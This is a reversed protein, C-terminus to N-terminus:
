SNKVLKLVEGTQVDIESQGPLNGKIYEGAVVQGNNGQGVYLQTSIAEYPAISSKVVINVSIRDRDKDMSEFSLDITVKRKKKWATNPDSINELVKQIEDSAREDIAGRALTAIEIKDM